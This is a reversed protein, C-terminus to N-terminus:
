FRLSSVQRIFDDYTFTAKGSKNADYKRFLKTMSLLGACCALFDDFHLGGVAPRSSFRLVLSDSARDSLRYSLAKLCARFEDYDLFGNGDGDHRRFVAEWDTIYRWLEIFEDVSITKSDDQDFM